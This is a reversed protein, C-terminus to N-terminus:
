RRKLQERETFRLSLDVYDIHQFNKSKNGDTFAIIIDNDFPVDSSTFYVDKIKKKEDKYIAFQADQKIWWTFETHGSM